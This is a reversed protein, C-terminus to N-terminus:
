QKDDFLAKNKINEKRRFLLKMNFTRDPSISLPRLTGDRIQIFARFQIKRLGQNGPSELDIWRYPGIQEYIFSSKFRELSQINQFDTLIPLITDEGEKITGNPNTGLANIYEDKVPITNTTIILDKLQFWNSLNPYETDFRLVVPPGADAINNGNNKILLEIDLDDTTDYGHFNIDMGQMFRFLSYNFFVRINDTNYSEQIECYIRGEIADYFFVPPETSIIPGPILSFANDFATNIMDVMHQFNFVGRFNSNFTNQPVFNLDSSYVTGGTTAPYPDGGVLLGAIYTGDEPFFFIPLNDTPVKIRTIALEYDSLDGCVIENVRTEFFDVDLSEGSGLPNYIQANYYINNDHQCNDYEFQVQKYYNSTM